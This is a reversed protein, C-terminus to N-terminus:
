KKLAIVVEAGNYTVKQLGGTKFDMARPTQPTIYAIYFTRTLLSGDFEGYRHGITLSGTTERYSLPIISFSNDEYNYNVGEDEYFNFAGDRGAYVYIIVPDAAASTYQIDPGTPVISGARVFLPMRTMPASVSIEKGGEEMNGSYADYWSQGAPLYVPRGAAGRVYIPNVLFAPGFMYQDAISTVAPDSPFDMVLGRMITYDDFYTHAALSYIYPMLRYRLRDYYVMSEYEPTGAPAINYIERFPYQGHSRFIPCFTGFQFWRTNLERWEDLVDGTANEYRKEVAFGGIDMTWYPIGSLSFNIGAAIQDQFDSWRSVIDGSWTASAYRQQGGFASRTLIFVRKDPSSRRQGEYINKSNVLSYANFYEAGSGLATPSMNLKREELSLNSHMDPETADMWFADIGKSNLKEDVRQWFLAGADPNFADYFTNQYGPGVWDKRGKDINRTFLYGKDNMEDYAPTGKNFKPWVSIMIRANLKDHLESIMGDPDPFRAPDFDHTGWEPDKWYQWDLVINDLPIKRKRYEKVVDLLEQQNRYRERSQWFGLAWKPPIPAKGTLHRYGAIVEDANSGKIFYYNIERGLESSLTLRQQEKGPLPDLHKVAMYGGDPFWEIKLNHKEGAKMDVAFNNSWPNWNQRWKDMVIRGDVWVKFYDSAYVLFKHRGEVDSSVSGEWVVKGKRSVDQPFTDYAPTELYEIGITNEIQSRVIKDGVYYDATLGGNRGDRSFLELSTLPEYDRPDGFKSASNNDWLIGYNRSSYLFPVVDVINHQVLDVDQGKYNMQGNQHAGLGFFAEDDPSHFSQAIHFLRSSDTWPAPDFYRDDEEALISKDVLDTFSVTGNPLSVIAKLAATVIVVSDETEILEWEVSEPRAVVMLSHDASDAQESTARVHVINDSMVRIRVERGDPHDTNVVIGNPLRIVSSKKECSSLLLILCALLLHKM